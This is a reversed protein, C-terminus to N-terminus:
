KTNDSHAFLGDLVDSLQKWNGSSQAGDADNKTPNSHPLANHLICDQRDKPPWIMDPLDLPDVSSLGDDEADIIDLPDFKSADQALEQDVTEFASLNSNRM